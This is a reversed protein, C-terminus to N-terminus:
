MSVIKFEVRRNQQRGEETTNPAKPAKEGKGVAKMRKTDVGRSVLYTKVANVRDQSLKLNDADNGVNDTHGIIEITITPKTILFTSLRDLEPMSEQRIVSEAFDFFLNNLVITENKRIPVLYLDRKIETYTNLTRADLQDSIPYYGEAEARFGYQDGSPLAIAYAGDLPASRAEGVAKGSRLSEYQVTTGIPQKTNADLVRGKVLFVPEPKVGDTLKVRYIDASGDNPNTASMYAYDGKAPVTFYADWGDTNISPGLNEPESWNLWTDDLRRTMWIDTGGYGKRGNTAFYMTRGDAAVFPSMEGGWTNVAGMNVPETFSGDNRKFSVYLDKNGKTDDRDVAMILVRGSPDLCMESFRSRNYYNSIQVPSPITWGNAIRYAISVGAGAPSGDRRYTNGLLASNGDPTISILFNSGENNLPRGVNLMPGWTNNPQLDSVYIDEREPAGINGAYPYRGIYLRRGDATIVPSLDGGTSNVNPGLNERSVNVPHDKALKIPLQEQRIEVYDYEVTLAGNVTLGFERGFVEPMEISTVMTGNFVINMATGRKKLTVVNWETGKVIADSPQWEIIDSMMGNIFQFVRFSGNPAIVLTTNNADDLCGWSIGYGHNQVGGTVRGRFELDFNEEYTLWVSPGRLFWAARPTTKQIRYAGGNIDATASQGRGVPWKNAADNFDDRFIVDYDAATVSLATIMVFAVVFISRMM